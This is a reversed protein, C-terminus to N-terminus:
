LVYSSFISRLPVEIRCSMLSSQGVLYNEFRPLWDRGDKRHFLYEEKFIDVMAYLCIVSKLSARRQENKLLGRYPSLNRSRGISYGQCSSNYLKGIKKIRKRIAFFLSFLSLNVWSFDLLKCLQFDILFEKWVKREMRVIDALVSM